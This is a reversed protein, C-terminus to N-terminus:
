KAGKCHTMHKDFAAPAVERGCRECVPHDSMGAQRLERKVRSVIRAVSYSM